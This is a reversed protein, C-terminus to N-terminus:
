SEKADFGDNNLRLDHNKLRVMEFGCNTAVLKLHERWDARSWLAAHGSGVSKKWMPDLTSISSGDVSVKLQQPASADDDNKARIASSRTNPPGQCLEGGPRSGLLCCQAPQPPGTPSCDQFWLCDKLSMGPFGPVCTTTLIAIYKRHVHM